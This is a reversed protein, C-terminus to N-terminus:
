YNMMGWEYSHPGTIILLWCGRARCLLIGSWMKSYIRRKYTISLLKIIYLFYKVYICYGVMLFYFMNTWCVKIKNININSWCEEYFNIINDRYNDIIVENQSCGCNCCNYCFIHTINILLRFIGTIDSLLGLIEIYYCVLYVLVAMFKCVMGFLCLFIYFCYVMYEFLCCVTKFFIIDFCCVLLGMCDMGFFFLVVYCRVFLCEFFILFILCVSMLCGFLNVYECIVQKKRAFMNEVSIFVLNKQCTTVFVLLKKAINENLFVLIILNLFILFIFFSSFSFVFVFFDIKVILCVFLFVLIFRVCYYNKSHKKLCQLCVIDIKVFFCVLCYFKYYSFVFLLVMEFHISYIFEVLNVKSETM